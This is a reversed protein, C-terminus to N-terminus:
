VKTCRQNVSNSPKSLWRNKVQSEISKLTKGAMRGHYWRAINFTCLYHEVDCIIELGLDHRLVIFSGERQITTNFTEVPLESHYGDSVKKGSSAIKVITEVRGDQHIKVSSDDTVVIIATEQSLITFKNDRVDRTLVYMCGPKQYGPFTYYTGDFTYVHPGGFIM